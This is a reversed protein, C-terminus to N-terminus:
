SGAATTTADEMSRSDHTQDGMPLTKSELSLVPVQDLHSILAKLDEIQSKLSKNEIELYHIKLSYM